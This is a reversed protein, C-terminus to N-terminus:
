ESKLGADKVLKTYKALEERMFASFQEPTNGGAYGGEQAIFAKAKPQEIAKVTEKHLVAVINRPTGAPALAAYWGSIDYGPLGAESMTPVDPLLGSRRTATVAIARLKGAQVYGLILSTGTVSLDIQGSLLDLMLTPTGRYPVHVMSIGASTRMLEIALHLIGGVGTSGFTIKGPHARALAILAKLDRAPLSPHVSVVYPLYLFVSIPAFDAIADYPIKRDYGPSAALQSATGWLLTYGDPKAKAVSSASIYGAAGDRNVVLVQQGISDSV